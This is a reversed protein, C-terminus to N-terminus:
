DETEKLELEKLEFLGGHKGQNERQESGASGPCSEVGQSGVRRELWTGIGEM